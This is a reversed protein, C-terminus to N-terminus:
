WSPRKSPGQHRKSTARCRLLRARIPAPVSGLILRRFRFTFGGRGEPLTANIRTPPGPRRPRDDARPEDSFAVAPPILDDGSGCRTTPPRWPRSRGGAPRVARRESSPMALEDGRGAGPIPSDHEVPHGPSSPRSSTRSMSSSPRGTASAVEVARSRRWTRTRGSWRHGGHRPPNTPSRRGKAPFDVPM